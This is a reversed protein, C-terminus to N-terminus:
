RLATPRSKSPLLDFVALARHFRWDGIAGVRSGNVNPCHVRMLLACCMVLDGGSRPLREAIRAPSIELPAAGGELAVRCLDFLRAGTQRPQAGAREVRGIFRSPALHFAEPRLDSPPRRLQGGIVGHQLALTVAQTTLTLATTLLALRRHVLSHGLRPLPHRNLALLGGILAVPDRILAFQDRVRSLLGSVVTFIDRVLALAQGILTLLAGVFPLRLALSLADGPELLLLTPLLRSIASLLGRVLALGSLSPAESFASCVASSLGSFPQCRGQAARGLRQVFAGLESFRVSRSLGFSAINGGLLKLGRVASA